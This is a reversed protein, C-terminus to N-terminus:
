HMPVICFLCFDIVKRYVVLLCVFFSTMTVIWEFLRLNFVIGVFLGLWPHLLIPVSFLFWAFYLSCIIKHHVPGLSVVCCLVQFM